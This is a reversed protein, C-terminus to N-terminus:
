GAISRRRRLTAFGALIMLAFHSASGAGTDTADDSADLLISKVASALPLSDNGMTAQDRNNSLDSDPTKSIVMAGLSDVQLVDDITLTVQSSEGGALRDLSCVVAGGTETQCLWDSEVQAVVHHESLQLRVQVGHAGQEVTNTIHLTVETQGSLQTARTALSLDSAYLRAISAIDGASLAKRQGLNPAADILPEITNMGNVSFNARGYHMISDYDYQGLLEANAPAKDFNHWKDPDINDWNIQIYQDRDSRTHEHELGLAHGIEHMVSGASCSPAIWVEQEGGQRGVWSACGPGSQFRLHDPPVAQNNGIEYLTIGSVANWHKVADLIATRSIAPLGADVLYPVIGDSWPGGAATLGVGRRVMRPGSLVDGDIVRLGGHTQPNNTESAAVPACYGTALLALACLPGIFTHATNLRWFAKPYLPGPM